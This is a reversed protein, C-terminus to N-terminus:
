EAAKHPTRAAVWYRLSPAQRRIESRVLPSLKGNMHLVQKVQSWGVSIENISNGDGIAINVALDIKPLITAM